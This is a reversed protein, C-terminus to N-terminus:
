VTFSILAASRSLLDIGGVKTKNAYRIDTNDLFFAQDNRDYTAQVFAGLQCYIQGGYFVSMDQMMFDDNTKLGNPEGKRNLPLDALDKQIHTFTPVAMISLPIQFESGTAGQERDHCRTGGATYGNLKFQRGFPTLQPFAGNHCTACPQGTQRAYSPVASAPASGLAVAAVLVLACAGGFVYVVSLGTGAPRNEDGSTMM